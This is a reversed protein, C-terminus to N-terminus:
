AKAHRYSQALKLLRKPLFGLVILKLRLKFSRSIKLKKINKFAHLNGDLRFGAANYFVGIKLLKIASKVQKDRLEGTLVAEDLWELYFPIEGSHNLNSRCQADQNYRACVKDSYVFGKQSAVKLWVYVDEGKKVGEPFGGINLLLDRPLCATSSNVLALSKSFAGFFDEIEGMFDTTLPQRPQFVEGGRWIEHADSYVGYGPYSNILKNLEELHWPYWYDDADLFAIYNGSAEKVGRNRAVSVGCNSQPIVKIRPDHVVLSQCLSDDTSGDDIVIVEFDNFSQAVVSNLTSAIHSGKNYLPIVVSFRINDKAQGQEVM